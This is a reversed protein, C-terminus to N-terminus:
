KSSNRQENVYTLDEEFFSYNKFPFKEFKKWDM